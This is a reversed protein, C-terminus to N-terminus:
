SASLPAQPVSSRGLRRLRLLRVAAACSKAIPALARRTVRSDGWDVAGGFGDGRMSEM